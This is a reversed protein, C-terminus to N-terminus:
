ITIKEYLQCPSVNIVFLHVSSAVNQLPIDTESIDPKYTCM